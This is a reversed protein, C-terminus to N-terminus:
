LTLELVALTVCLFLTEFFGILFVFHYFSWSAQEWTQTRYDWSGEQRQEVIAYTDLVLCLEKTTAKLSPRM